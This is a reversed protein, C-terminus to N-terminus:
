EGGVTITWTVTLTDGDNVDIGTQSTGSTINLIAFPNGSSVADFLGAAYVNNTANGSDFNFPNTTDIVAQAGSSGSAATGAAVSTDQLRRYDSASPEGELTSNTTSIGVTPTHDLQNVGIWTFGGASEGACQTTGFLLDMTCDLGENVVVNDSQYYGIVNGASDLHMTEVHGLMNMDSNHATPAVMMTSSAMSGTSTLGIAVAAIAITLILPVNKM